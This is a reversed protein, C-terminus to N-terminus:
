FPRPMVFGESSMLSEALETAADWLRELANSGQRMKVALVDTFCLFPLWMAEWREIRDREWDARVEKLSRNWIQWDALANIEPIVVLNSCNNWCKLESCGGANCVGGIGIPKANPGLAQPKKVRLQAAMGAIIKQFREQFQSYLQDYIYKTPFRVQYVGTQSPDHQGYALGVRLDGDNELAYRLLVSPRLMVPTIGLMSLDPIGGLLKKFNDLFWQAKIEVIDSKLRTIFLLDRIGDPAAKRAVANNDRLWCLATLARSDEPLNIVIPKGKARAKSGTIKQFGHIDTEEICDHFLTRAVAVNCGSEALYMTMVAAHVDRHPILYAQVLLQSSYEQCRVSFFREESSGALPILGGYRDHILRVLNALGQRRKDPDTPFYTRLAKLYESSTSDAGFLVGEYETPDVGESLLQQGEVYHNRWFVFVAEAADEILSLRRSIIQSIAEVPDKPLEGQWKEIESQLVVLFDDGRFETVGDVWNAKQLLVWNAFSVYQKALSSLEPRQTEEGVKGLRPLVEAVTRNGNQDRRKPPLKIRHKTVPFIHEREFCAVISNYNVAKARNIGHGVEDLAARWDNDSIAERRNIAAFAMRVCRSGIAALKRMIQRVDVALRMRKQAPQGVFNDKFAACVRHVIEESWGAKMLPEFNIGRGPFCVWAPHNSIMALHAEDAADIHQKFPSRMFISKKCKITRALAERDIAIGNRLLSAKPLANILAMEIKHDEDGVYGIRDLEINFEDILDLLAQCGDRQRKSISFDKQLAKLEIKPGRMQLTRRKVHSKFWERIQPIKRETTSLPPGVHRQYDRLIVRHASTMHTRDIGIIRAYDCSSLMGKGNVIFSRCELHSALVAKLRAISTDNEEIAVRDRFVSRKPISASLTNKDHLRIAAWDPVYDIEAIRSDWLELQSVILPHNQAAGRGLDLADYIRQRNLKDVRVVLTRAAIALNVYSDLRDILREDIIMEDAALKDFHDFIHDALKYHFPLGVAALYWGRDVRDANSMPVLEREAFHRALMDQLASHEASHSGRDIQM